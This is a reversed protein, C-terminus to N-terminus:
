YNDSYKLIQVIADVHNFKIWGEKIQRKHARESIETSYQGLYGYGSIHELMHELFHIKPFNFDSNDRLTDIEAAKAQDQIGAVTIAQQRSPGNINALETRMLSGIKTAEASASKYARFELFIDKADHFDELYRGM